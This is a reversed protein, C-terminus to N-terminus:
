ASRSLKAKQKCVDWFLIELHSLAIAYYRLSLQRFLCSFGVWISTGQTRAGLASRMDRKRPGFVFTLGMALQTFHHEHFYIGLSDYVHIQNNRHGFPAPTAPVDVRDPIGLIKYLAEPPLAESISVGNLIVGDLGVQAKLM